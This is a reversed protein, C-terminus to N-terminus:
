RAPRARRVCRFGYSDWGFCSDANAPEDHFRIASRCENPGLRWCGGRLVRDKGQAPGQPDRPPSKAYSEPDYRDNCWELLSGAMDHLGWANPKRAGVPRTDKPANRNFWAYADIGSADDGCFWRTATGARCAYEWEAETPLRYGNAEFKCKGTDLDYCPELGERKSRGNCYDVAETWRVQDVADGPRERKAPNYGVTESFHRQTVEFRDMLFASIEVEHVPQEDKAGAADGMRFKGAPILVMEVGSSTTTIEPAAQGGIPSVQPSSRSDAQPITGAPPASSKGCGAGLIAALISLARAALAHMTFQNSDHIM